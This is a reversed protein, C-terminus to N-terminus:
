KMWEFIWVHGEEDGCVLWHGDTALCLIISSNQFLTQSEGSALTWVSITNNSSRSVVQKGDPTVAVTLVSGTHGELSRLLHGSQLDWVKITEDDSGSVIQEGDPTIAVDSVSGTHGELSCLLHGSQLDWVKITKDSSGSVIQKGDPTIEVATVRDTHGELSHLLIGTELDWVVFFLQISQQYSFKLGEFIGSNL